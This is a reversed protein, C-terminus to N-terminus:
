KTNGLYHPVTCVTPSVYCGNSYTCNNAEDCVMLMIYSSPYASCKLLSTGGPAARTIIGAVLNASNWWIGDSMTSPNTYSWKAIISAVPGNIPGYSNDFPETFYFTRIDAFVGSSFMIILVIASFIKVLAKDEV